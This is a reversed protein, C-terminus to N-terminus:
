NIRDVIIKMKKWFIKLKKLKKLDKKWNKQNNLFKKLKKLDKKEM